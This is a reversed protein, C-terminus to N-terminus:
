FRVLNEVTEPFHQKLEVVVKTGRPIISSGISLETLDGRGALNNLDTLLHTM